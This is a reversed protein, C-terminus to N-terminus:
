LTNFYIFNMAVARFIDNIHGTVFKIRCSLDNYLDAAMNIVYYCPVIIVIIPLHISIIWM